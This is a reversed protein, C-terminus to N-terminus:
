KAANESIARSFPPLNNNGIMIPTTEANTNVMMVMSDPLGSLSFKPLNKNWAAPYDNIRLKM